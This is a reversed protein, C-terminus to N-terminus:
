ACLYSAPSHYCCTCILQGSATSAARFTMDFANCRCRLYDKLHSTCMLSLPGVPPASESGQWLTLTSIFIHLESQDSRGVCVEYLSYVATSISLQIHTQNYGSSHRLSFQRLLHAEGPLRSGLLHSWENSIVGSLKKTDYLM